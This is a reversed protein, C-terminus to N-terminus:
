HTQTKKQLCFVAYSIRMLSQLESTHEESRCVAAKQAGVQPDGWTTEALADVASAETLPATEVPEAEPLPTVTTQAFAAAAVALAALGAFGYARAHRMLQAGSNRQHCTPSWACAGAPGTARPRM